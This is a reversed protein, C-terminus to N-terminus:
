SNKQLPRVLAGARLHQAPTGTHDLAHGHIIFLLLGNESAGQKCGEGVAGPVVPLAFLNAADGLGGPSRNSGPWILFNM